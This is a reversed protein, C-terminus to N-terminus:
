GSTFKNGTQVFSKERSQHDKRQTIDKLMTIKIIVYIVGRTNSICMFLLM